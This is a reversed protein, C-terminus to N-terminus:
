VGKKVNRMYQDIFMLLVLIYLIWSLLSLALMKIYEADGDEEEEQSQFYLIPFIISFVGALYLTIIIVLAM